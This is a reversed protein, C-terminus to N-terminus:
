DNNHGKQQLSQESLAEKLRTIKAKDYFMEALNNLAQVAREISQDINLLEEERFSM